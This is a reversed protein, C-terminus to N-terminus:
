SKERTKNPEEDVFKVRSLHDRVQGTISEIYEKRLKEREKLEEDTLGEKKNKAALENIRDIKEKTIMVSENLYIHDAPHAALQHLPHLSVDRRLHRRQLGARRLHQHRPEPADGRRRHHPEDARRGPLRAAHAAVHAAHPRLARDAKALTNKAFSKAGDPSSLTEVAEDDLLNWRYEHVFDM